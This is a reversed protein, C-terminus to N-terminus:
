GYQGMFEPVDKSEFVFGLSDHRFVERRSRSPKRLANSTKRDLGILLRLIHHATAESFAGSEADSISFGAIGRGNETSEHVPPGLVPRGFAGHLSTDKWWAQM